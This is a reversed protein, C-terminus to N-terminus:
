NESSFAMRKMMAILKDADTIKRYEELYKERYMIQLGAEEETSFDEVIEELCIGVFSDVMDVVVTENDIGCFSSEKLAQLITLMQPMISKEVIGTILLNVLKGAKKISESDQNSLARKYRIFWKLYTKNESQPHENLLVDMRAKEQLNEGSVVDKLAWIDERLKKCLDLKIDNFSFEKM